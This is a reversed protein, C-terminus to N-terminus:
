AKALSCTQHHTELMGFGSFIEAIVVEREQIIRPAHPRYTWTQPGWAFYEHGSGLLMLGRSVLM